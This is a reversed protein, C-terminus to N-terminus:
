EIFMLRHSDFDNMKVEPYGLRVAKHSSKNYLIIEGDFEVFAGIKGEEYARKVSLLNLGKPKQMQRESLNQIEDVPLYSAFMRPDVSDYFYDADIKLAAAIRELAEDRIHRRGSEWDYIQQGCVGLYAGLTKRTLRRYERITKIKKGAEKASM